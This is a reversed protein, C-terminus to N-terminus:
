VLAKAVESEWAKSSLSGYGGRSDHDSPSGDSSSIMLATKVLAIRARGDEPHAAHLADGHRELILSLAGTVFVTADSTGSSSSYPVQLSPDSTSIIDVGPAAVEPKRDPDVRSENTAGVTESGSSSDAWIGGFADHASVAIVGPINAPTSVDDTGPGDNGAAAIVFVGNDLAENVAAVTDGIFPAQPDAVGGLSLSIIDAQMETWCWEIADAVTREDNAKGQIGLAAAVSLRVDPAAGRLKGDAVLIGAMMTGHFDSGHDATRSDVGGVLDIYGIVSAARLDPHSIDIGTDVLCVNVGEGTLGETSLERIGAIEFAWESDPILPGFLVSEIAPSFAVLLVVGAVLTFFGWPVPPKFPHFWDTRPPPEEWEDLGYASAPYGPADHDVATLMRPEEPEPLLEIREPFPM